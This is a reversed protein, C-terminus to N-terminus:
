ECVYSSKKATCVGGGKCDRGESDSQGCTGCGTAGSLCVQDAVVCTEADRDCPCMMAGKPIHDECHDGGNLCTGLYASASCYVCGLPFDMCKSCDSVHVLGKKTTCGYTVSVEDVFGADSADAADERADSIADAGGDIPGDANTPSDSPPSDPDASDSGVADPLSTETPDMADDRPEM